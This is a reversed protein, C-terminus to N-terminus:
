LLIPVQGLAVTDGGLALEIAKRTLAETEGELLGMAARTVRHRAGKPKGKPNGSMGKRFRGQATRPENCKEPKAQIRGSNEPKRNM